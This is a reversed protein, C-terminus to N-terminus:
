SLLKAKLTIETGTLAQSVPCNKKADEFHISGKLLGAEWSLVERAKRFTEKGSQRQKEQRCKRGEKHKM